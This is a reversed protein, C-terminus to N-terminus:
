LLIASNQQAIFYTYGLIVFTVDKRTKVAPQWGKVDQSGNAGYEPYAGVLRANEKTEIIEDICKQPDWPDWMEYEPISGYESYAPIYNGWWFMLKTGLWKAYLNLDATVTGDFDYEDTLASNTYWGQFQPLNEGAKTPDAPKALTTGKEIQTQYTGVATGGNLHWTIAWYETTPTSNDYQCETCINGNFTHDATDAKEGDTECEHWHQTANKHWEGSFDHTHNPDATVTVSFTTTKGEYTVTITSAGVSLTGSL